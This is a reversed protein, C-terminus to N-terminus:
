DLLSHVFAVAGRRLHVDIDVVHDQLIMTVHLRCFRPWSIAFNVFDPMALQVSDSKPNELMVSDCFGTAWTM